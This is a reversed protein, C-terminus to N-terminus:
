KYNDVDKLFDNASNYFSKSVKDYDWFSNLKKIIEKQNESIIEKEKVRNEITDRESKLGISKFYESLDTNNLEIRLMEIHYSLPKSLLASTNKIAFRIDKSYEVEQKLHVALLKAYLLNDDVHTKSATEVLNSLLKLSDIDQEWIQGKLRKFTNFIRKIANQHIWSM